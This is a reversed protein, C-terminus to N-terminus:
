IYIFEQYGNPIHKVKWQIGDSSVSFVCCAWLSRKSVFPWNSDQTGGSNLTPNFILYCSDAAISSGSIKPGLFFIFPLQLIDTYVCMNNYGSTSNIAASGYLQDPHYVKIHNNEVYNNYVYYIDSMSFDTDGFNQYAASQEDVSGISFTYVYKSGAAYQNNNGLSYKFKINKFDYPCSNGREDTLRYIVGKGNEEDAWGFRDTDNDLCYKLTWAELKSNQFYTDGEHHCARANENLTNVSDATVIIDFLHGAVQTESEISTTEYDTIRYQTGPILQSNRKLECLEYYTVETMPQGAIEIDGEGVLSNGNITKLDSETIAGIEEATVTHINIVKGDVIFKEVENM